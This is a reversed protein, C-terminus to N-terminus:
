NFHRLCYLQSPPKKEKPEDRDRIQLMCFALSRNGFIVCRTNKIKKGGCRENLDTLFIQLRREQRQINEYKEQYKLAISL